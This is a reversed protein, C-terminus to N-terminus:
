KWNLPYYRFVIHNQYESFINTLRLIFSKVEIQFWGNLVIKTMKPLLKLIVNILFYIKIEWRESKQSFSSVSLLKVLPLYLIMEWKCRGGVVTQATKIKTTKRWNQHHISVKNKKIFRIILYNCQRNSSILRCLNIKNKLNYKEFSCIYQVM